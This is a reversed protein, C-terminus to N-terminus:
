LKREIMDNAIGKLRDLYPTTFKRETRIISLHTSVFLEPDNIVQCKGWVYGKPIPRRSFFDQLRDATNKTM